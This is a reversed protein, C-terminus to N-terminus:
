QCLRKVGRGGGALVLQNLYHNRVIQHPLLLPQRVTHRPGPLHRPEHGGGPLPPVGPDRLGPDPVGREGAQLFLLIINVVAFLKLNIDSLTSFPLTTGYLSKTM